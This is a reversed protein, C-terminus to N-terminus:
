IEGKCYRIWNTRIRNLKSAVSSTYGRPYDNFIKQFLMREEKSCIENSFYSDFMWMKILWRQNDSYLRYSM